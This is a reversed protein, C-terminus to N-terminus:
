TVPPSSRPRRELFRRPSRRSRHRRCCRITRREPSSSNPTSTPLSAPRASASSTRPERVPRQRDRLDGQRGAARGLAALNTPGALDVACALDPERAALMLALHGGASSGIACVPVDPGVRKRAEAYFRELDVVGDAGSRYDVTLTGYGLNEYLPGQALTAKFQDRDIGAWGGGHILILAARPEQGAFEGSPEGWQSIPKPEPKPPPKPAPDETDGCGAAIMLALVASLAARGRM